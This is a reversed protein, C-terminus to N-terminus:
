IYMYTCINCKYSSVWLQNIIIICNMIFNGENTEYQLTKEINKVLECWFVIKVLM